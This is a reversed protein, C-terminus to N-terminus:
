DVVEMYAIVRLFVSETDVLQYGVGLAVDVSLRNVLYVEVFDAVHVRHGIDHADTHQNVFEGGVSDEGGRYVDAAAAHTARV